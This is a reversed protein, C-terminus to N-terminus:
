PPTINKKNIYYEIGFKMHEVYDFWDINKIDVNFLLKEDGTM